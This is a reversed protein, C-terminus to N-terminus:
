VLLLRSMEAPLTRLRNCKAQLRTLQTLCAIASPPISEIGRSNLTLARTARNKMVVMWLAATPDEALSMTALSFIIALHRRTQTTHTPMDATHTATQAHHCDFFLV